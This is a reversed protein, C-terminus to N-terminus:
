ILNRLLENDILQISESPLEKFIEIKGLFEDILPRHDQKENEM